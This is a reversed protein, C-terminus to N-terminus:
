SAVAGESSSGREAPKQSAAWAVRVRDGPHLNLLSAASKGNGAIELHDASNWLMALDGQIEAYTRVLDSIVRGNALSASAPMPAYFPTRAVALIVNGFRDVVIVRADTGASDGRPLFDSVLKPSSIRPGLSEFSLTGAAVRAALPAILDRGHFTASLRTPELGATEIRLALRNRGRSWMFHLLGNDPAIVLQRDVRAAVLPRDTGVGPDVVACHVTGPPFSPASAALWYAGAGIDHPPIGHTVTVVRLQPAVGAIAGELAGAYGDCTGFDTLLTLIAAM